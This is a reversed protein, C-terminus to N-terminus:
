GSSLRGVAPRESSTSLRDDSSMPPDTDLTRRPEPPPVSESGVPLFISVTSGEGARSALQLEGGHAEVIRNVIALGLGTGSPRTTFFPDKARSRVQTDMGEGDDTVTVLYGDIGDKTTGKVDVQVNGTGGTAQVANDVLNDIVQRLLNSDGWVQGRVSGEDFSVKAETRHAALM